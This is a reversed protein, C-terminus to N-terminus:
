KERYMVWEQVNSISGGTTVKTNSEKDVYREYTFLAYYDTYTSTYYNFRFMRPTGIHLNNKEAASSPLISHCGYSRMNQSCCFGTGWDPCDVSSAIAYFYKFNYGKGSTGDASWYGSNPSIMRDDNNAYSGCDYMWHWYIYGTWSNSVTRKSTESESATYASKMFSTYYSHSQNFGGPFSAYHKSGSGNQVWEKGIRTYGSLSTSTSTTTERQTYSWKQQVVQAGAPMESERVWGQVPKLEWHAYLTMDVPAAVVTNETVLEGGEAATYWGLFNHYDRTPVPLTGIPAGCATIRSTEGVVGGNANFNVFFSGSECYRVRGNTQVILSEDIEDGCILMDGKIHLRSYVGDKQSITINNTLVANPGQSNMYVNSYLKMNVPDGTLQMALGSANVTLTELTVNESSLVLPTVSCGGLVADGIVTTTADSLIRVGNYTRGGGNFVFYDTSGPIVIDFGSLDDTM